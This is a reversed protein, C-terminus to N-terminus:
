SYTKSTKKVASALEAITAAQSKELSHHVTTAQLEERAIKHGIVAWIAITLCTTLSCVWKEQTIWTEMWPSREWTLMCLGQWGITCQDVNWIVRTKLWQNRLQYGCFSWKRPHHSVYLQSIPYTELVTITAERFCVIMLLPCHTTRSWIWPWQNSLTAHFVEKRKLKVLNERRNLFSTSHTSISGRWQLKYHVWVIDLDVRVECMNLVSNRWWRSM